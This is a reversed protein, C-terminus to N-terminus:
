KGEKYKYQDNIDWGYKSGVKKTYLGKGIASAETRLKKFDGDETAKWFVKDGNIEAFIFKTDHALYVHGQKIANLSAPGTQYIGAFILVNQLSYTLNHM